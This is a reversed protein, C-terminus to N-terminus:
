SEDCSREYQNDIVADNHLEKVSEDDIKTRCVNTGLMDFMVCGYDYGQNYYHNNKNEDREGHLLGDAVGDKFALLDQNNM